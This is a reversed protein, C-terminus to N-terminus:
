IFNKDISIVVFYSDDIETVKEQILTKIDNDSMGFGYPVVLDFILNTHTPGTVMRFDHLTLNPDIDKVILEIANKTQIVVENDTEIPDMHIVADCKFHEQLEKEILDITDHLKIVDDNADVEAHLSLMFRTPGYNHIILDHIGIVGEHSMVIDRIENVLESSPAEGLLPTLSDRITQYGTFLIFGAVILGIYGDISYGTLRFVVIGVLVAFTAVSDSLSDKATAAMSQSSIKIGIRRNFFFMWLKALISIILIAVSIPTFVIPEASTIKDLSSRVLEVGMFLIAISVFLASIYEIRGHGFPHEKDAPKGSMKFGILTIVSSLADSLNNLADAIVSVSASIIGACLKIASLVINLVIGVAGGFIGYRERVHEDSTNEYDKIFIKFLFDPMALGCKRLTTKYLIM